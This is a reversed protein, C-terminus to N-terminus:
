VHRATGNHAAWTRRVNRNMKAEVADVLDNWDYGFARVLMTVVIVVDAAEALVKEAQIAGGTARVEDVLEDLEEHLKELQAEADLRDPNIADLKAALADFLDNMMTNGKM